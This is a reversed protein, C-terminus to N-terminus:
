GGPTMSVNVGPPPLEASRCLGLFREELETHPINEGVQGTELVARLRRVGPCGATRSLLERVADLDLVQLVEAQDCARELAPRHVVGALDLLTRPISTCPILGVLARDVPILCTSRHARIGRRSLGVRRPVTVDITAGASSLLRHLAAASVHSLLAGEGCALVAAMWRGEVPVDPRGVAYVGRHIRHLRGRAVRRRAGSASLGLARCQDLALVGHQREALALLHRERETSDRRPGLQSEYPIAIRGDAPM